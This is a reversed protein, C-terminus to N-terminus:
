RRSTIGHAAFFQFDPHDVRVLRVWDDAAQLLSNALQWEYGGNPMWMSGKFKYSALGFVPLSIKPVGDSDQPYTIVPSQAGGARAKDALPERSYPPDQEFFEFLLSGQAHGPESDDSSCGERSAHHKERLSLGDIRLSAALHHHNWLDRPYKLGRDFECDNSGESSSDRSFDSDSDEGSCRSRGSFRMKADRGASRGYIQIGSLYPVYYQVVCDSGNLVLPVGAGYASWEKFSEWLDALAFYPQFEVNCTRWGRVRTKSLYQAPVSPTTSELFRDLNSRPSRTTSPDDSVPAPSQPEPNESIAAKGKSRRQQQYHHHRRAKAPNNFRDDGRAFQLGAGLM